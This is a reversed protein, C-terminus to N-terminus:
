KFYFGKIMKNHTFLYSINLQIILSVYCSQLSVYFCKTSKHKYTM